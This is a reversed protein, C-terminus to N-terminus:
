FGNKLFANVHLNIKCNCNSNETLFFTTVIFGHELIFKGARMIRGPLLFLNGFIDPSLEPCKRTNQSISKRIRFFFFGFAGRFTKPGLVIEPSKLFAGSSSKIVSSAPCPILLPYLLCGKM